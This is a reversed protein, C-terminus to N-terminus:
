IWNLVEKNIVYKLNKANIQYDSYLDKEPYVFAKSVTKLNAPKVSSYEIETEPGQTFIGTGINYYYQRSRRDFMAPEGDSVSVLDRVLIDNEYVQVDYIRVNGLFADRAIRFLQLTGSSTSSSYTYTVNMIPTSNRIVTLRNKNFDVDLIDGINISETADILQGFYSARITFIGSDSQWIYFEHGTVHDPYSSGFFMAYNGSTTGVKTPSCTMRIRTNGTTHMGLDVYQTQTSELYDLKTPISISSIEPGVIFTRTGLNSYFNGSVKDYLGATENKLAPIFDRVLIDDEYIRCSYVRTRSFKDIVNRRNQAFICLNYPVSFSPVNPTTGAYIDNIQLGTKDLQVKMRVGNLTAYIAQDKVESCIVWIGFETGLWYDGATIVGEVGTDYSIYDLIIKTNDTPKIGTDIYQYGTSEIYELPTIGAPTAIKKAVYAVNAESLIRDDSIM